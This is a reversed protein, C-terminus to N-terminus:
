NNPAGAEIWQRLTEREGDDLSPFSFPMPAGVDSNAERTIVKRYLVSEAPNGPEVRYDRPRNYSLVNVVGAPGTKFVGTVRVNQRNSPASLEPPNPTGEYHCYSCKGPGILGDGDSDENALEDQDGFIPQVQTWFYDDNRAGDQIWKGIIEVETDAVGDPLTGAPVDSGTLPAIQLPMCDKGGRAKIGCSNPDASNWDVKALLMSNDPNGPDVDKSPLSCAPESGTVCETDYVSNGSGVLGEGAAFPNAINVGLPRNANHCIVCGQGFIPRVDDRYTLGEDDSCGALLFLAGALPAVAVRLYALRYTRRLM